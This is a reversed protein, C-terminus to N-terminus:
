KIEIKGANNLEITKIQSEDSILCLIMEVEDGWSVNDLYVVPDPPAFVVDFNHHPVDCIKIKPGLSIQSILIDTGDLAHISGTQCNNTNACDVYLKYFSNGKVVRLGFGCVSRGECYNNDEGSLAKEQYERLNQALNFAAMKLTLKDDEKGKVAFVVSSVIAIVAISVMLEVITFGKRM